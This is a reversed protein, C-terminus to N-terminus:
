TPQLQFRSLLVQLSSRSIRFCLYSHWPNSLLKSLLAVKATHCDTSLSGPADTRAAQFASSAHKTATIATTFRM